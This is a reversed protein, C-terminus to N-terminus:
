ELLSREDRQLHLRKENSIDLKEQEEQWFNVSDNTQKMSKTAKQRGGGDLQEILLRLVVIQM